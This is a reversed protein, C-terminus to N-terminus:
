IFDYYFLQNLFNLSVFTPPLCTNKFYIIKQKEFILKYKLPICEM